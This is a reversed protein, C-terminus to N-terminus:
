WATSIELEYELQKTSTDRTDDALVFERTHLGIAIGM